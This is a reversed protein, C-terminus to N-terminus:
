RRLGAKIGAYKRQKGIRHKSGAARQRDARYRYDREFGPTSDHGISVSVDEPDGEFALEADALSTGRKWLKVVRPYGSDTLSGPGFNTGVWLANEDRWSVRSKAEPVSFGAIQQLQTQTGYYDVTIRSLLGPNARGTRIGGFEQTTHVVAQDMKHGADKMLDNIM